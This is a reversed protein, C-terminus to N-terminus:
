LMNGDIQGKNKVISMGLKIALPKIKTKLEDLALTYDAIALTQNPSIKVQYSVTATDGTAQAQTAIALQQSKVRAWKPTCAGTIKAKEDAQIDQAQMYALWDNAEDIVGGILTANIFAARAETFDQLNLESIGLLLNAEG